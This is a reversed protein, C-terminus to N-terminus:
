SMVAVIAAAMDGNVPGEPHVGPSTGAAPSAKVVSGAPHTAPGGFTSGIRAVYPGSGTLDIVRCNTGVAQNAGGPELVLFEGIIGPEAPLSVCSATTDTTLVDASLTTNVTTRLKWKNPEGDATADCLAKTDAYKDLLPGGVKALNLANLQDRVEGTGHGTAVTQNGLSTCFDTTSVRQIVSTIATEKPGVLNNKLKTLWTDHDASIQAATRLGAIDNSGICIIGGTHYKVMSLMMDTNQTAAVDARMASRACSTYAVGATYAGRRLFGGGFSGDSSPLDDDADATSDGPVGIWARATSAVVGVIMVPLFGNQNGATAGSPVAMAGTSDVDDIENAPLYSYNNDILGGSENFTDRYNKNVPYAGTALNAVDAEYRVWIIDGPVVSIAAYDSVKDYEGPALTYSRLGGFTIPTTAGGNKEIAVKRITVSNANALEGTTLDIAKNGYVLAISDSATMVRYKVRGKLQTRNSTIGGNMTINMQGRATIALTLPAGDGGSSVGQRLWRRRRSIPKM